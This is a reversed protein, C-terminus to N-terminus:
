KQVLEHVRALLVRDLPEDGDDEHEERGQEDLHHVSLAEAHLLTALLAVVVVQFVGSEVLRRWACVQKM